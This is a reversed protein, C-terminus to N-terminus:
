LNSYFDNSKKNKDQAIEVWFKDFDVPEVFDDQKFFTHNFNNFDRYNKDTIIPRPIDFEHCIDTLYELLKAVDFTGKIEYLNSATIREGKIIKAWLKM